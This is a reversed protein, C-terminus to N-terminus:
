AGIPMAIRDLWTNFEGLALECQMRHRQQRDRVRNPLAPLLDFTINAPQFNKPDAHTVYHVLSGFASARPSQSWTAKWEASKDPSSFGRTPRPKCPRECSPQAMSIRTGIFRATACSAPM